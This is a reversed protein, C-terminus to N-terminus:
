RGTERWQYHWAILRRELLLFCQNLVLGVTGLVLVGAYTQAVDFRRQSILILNGVGNQAAVFESIVMMIIALGMATRIGALIQPLAAPLIVRRIVAAPSMGFVRGTEIMYPDVNRAGDLSNLLIPWLCAFAILAVRMGDGTGLLIIAASLLAPAPLARCFELVPRVWSTLQRSYGLTLGSLMGVFVAASLGVLVRSVSPLVDEFLPPGAFIEFYAIAVTTVPPIHRVNLAIALLHWAVLVALVLPLGALAEGIRRARRPTTLSVTM